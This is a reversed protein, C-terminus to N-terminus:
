CWKVRFEDVALQHVNLQWGNRILNTSLEPWKKLVFDNVYFDCLESSNSKEILSHFDNHPNFSKKLRLSDNLIVGLILAHFYAKIIDEDSINEQLVVNITKLDHLIVYPFSIYTRRLNKLTFDLNHRGTEVIQKLSCGLNIKRSTLERDSIGFGLIVNEEQNIVKPSCVINYELFHKVVLLFRAGNITHINLSKVAKYNAFLHWFVNFFFLTWLCWYKDEIFSLIFVGLFSAVLNVCTEQSGDKASVDGMNGHIAQHQTIAARTAGGAVGVIAKMGTSICLIIPGYNKFWVFGLLLEFCMAIDNTFDAVLRWKKCDTDLSYGKWWAFGIRGIMGTGDKLIWTVTAALATAEQDGVGVGKLIAHTTLTGNITSVFAQVTDWIQYDMYDSSVSSPYGRPLFVDQLIKKVFAVSLSRAGITNKLSVSLNSNRRVFLYTANPRKEEALLEEDDLLREYAM